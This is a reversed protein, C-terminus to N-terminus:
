ASVIVNRQSVDVGRVAAHYAALSLVCLSQFEKSAGNLTEASPIRVMAVERSRQSVDRIHLSQQRKLHDLLHVGLAMAPALAARRTLGCASTPCVIALLIFVEAGAGERIQVLRLFDVVMVAMMVANAAHQLIAAQQIEVAAFQLICGILGGARVSDAFFLVVGDQHGARM